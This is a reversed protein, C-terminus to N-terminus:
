LISRLCLRGDVTRIIQVFNGNPLLATGHDKTIWIHRGGDRSTWESATGMADEIVLRGIPLSCPKSLQLSNDKAVFTAFGVSERLVSLQGQVEHATHGNVHKFVSVSLLQVDLSRLALHWTPDFVNSVVAVGRPVHALLAQAKDRPLGEFGTCLSTVCTQEPEGFRFCRVQPIVHRELSHTVLEVEVVFWHSFTRHILALDARKRDGDLVFEGAFSGCFYNPLLCTLAKVVEAEFDIESFGNPDVLNLINEPRCEGTLLARM